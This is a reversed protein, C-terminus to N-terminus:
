TWLYPRVQICLHLYKQEQEFIENEINKLVTGHVYDDIFIDNRNKIYKDIVNWRIDKNKELEELTKPINTTDFVIESTSKDSKKFVLDGCIYDSWFSLLIEKEELLKPYDVKWWHYIDKIIDMIWKDKLEPYLIKIECEGYKHGVDFGNEDQYWLVHKEPQQIEIFKVIMEMNACLMFYHFDTYEWPKVQPIKIRDHRHFLLNKLDYAPYIWNKFFDEIQYFHFFDIVKDFFTEDQFVINAM